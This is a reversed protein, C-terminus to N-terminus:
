IVYEGEFKGLIVDYGKIKIKNIMADEDKTSM